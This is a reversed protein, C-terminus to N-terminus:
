QCTTEADSYQYRHLVQAIRIEKKAEVWLHRLWLVDEHHKVGRDDVFSEPVRYAQALERKWICWFWPPRLTVANPQFPQMPNGLGCSVRGEVGNISAIQDYSIVDVDHEVEPMVMNFFGDVFSDDDDLFVIYEGCAARLLQNRKEGLNQFANDRLMLIEVPLGSAQKELRKFLVNAKEERRTITPILISLKPKPM